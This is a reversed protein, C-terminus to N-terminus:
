QKSNLGLLPIVNTDNMGNNTGIGGTAQITNDRPFGRGGRGSGQGPSPRKDNSGYEPYGHIEFCTEINHGSKHCNTCSVTKDKVETRKQMALAMLEPRDDKERTMTKVREKLRMSDWRTGLDCTCTTLQDFNALEDWIHKLRGYYNVITLGKKQCSALDSKLQQIRPGNTILFRDKLDDWLVKPGRARIDLNDCIEQLKNPLDQGEYMYDDYPDEDYDGNEYSNRWQKLLSQTRFGVMELAMSRTIDNDVFEVEDESDHDGPYDVVLKLMRSPSGSSNARNSALNSTGENTGLEEDNDVLNLVDFLNSNSVEKTLEVAKKKNGSTNATPPVGKSAQSPKKLNKAVGLGPKKPYEKQTHGFVKCCACRPPKWEYEVRVICTYFGERTLKSMVVVITDNLKVDARLEIMARAYSSMGPINGVDEKFLKVNPNWKKLILPDNRIFWPGSELMANLGDMSSFQFSFLGTSSNLM